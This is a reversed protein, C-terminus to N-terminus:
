RSRRTEIRAEGTPALRRGGGPGHGRKAALTVTEIRAEGTRALRRPGELQGPPLSKTAPKRWGALPTAASVSKFTLSRAFHHMQIAELRSRPVQQEPGASPTRAIQKM